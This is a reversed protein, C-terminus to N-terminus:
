DVKEGLICIFINGPKIDRNDREAGTVRISRDSKKGVYEGGTIEAIIQPTLKEM